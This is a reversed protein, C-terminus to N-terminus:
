RPLIIATSTSSPQIPAGPASNPAMYIYMLIIIIIITIIIILSLFVLLQGSFVTAWRDRDWATAMEVSFQSIPRGNDAGTTWLVEVSGNRVSGDDM